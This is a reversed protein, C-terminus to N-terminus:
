KAKLLTRVTSDLRLSPDVGSVKNRLASKKDIIFLTPPSTLTLKARLDFMDDGFVNPFTIGLERMTRKAEARDPGHDLSIGIVILGQARYKEYVREIEPLTERCAPTTTNWFEVLVVRGKLDLLRVPPNLPLTLDPVSGFDPEPAPRNMVFAPIGVALGLLVLFFLIRRLKYM